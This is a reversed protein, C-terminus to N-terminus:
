VKEQFWEGSLMVAQNRLAMAKAPMDAAPSKASCNLDLL